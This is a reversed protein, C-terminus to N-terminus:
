CIWYATMTITLFICKLKAVMFPMVFLKLQPLVNKVMDLLCASYSVRDPLVATLLEKDRVRFTKRHSEQTLFM